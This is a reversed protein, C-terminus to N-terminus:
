STETELNNIRDYIEKRHVSIEKPAKIGIRVQAGQVELVTIETDHGIKIKEGTRRTIILM